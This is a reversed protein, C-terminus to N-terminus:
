VEIDRIFDPNLDGETGCAFDTSATPGFHFKECEFAPSNNM